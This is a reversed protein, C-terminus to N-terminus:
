GQKDVMPLVSAGDYPSTSSPRREQWDIAARADAVLEAPYGMVELLAIANRTSSVGDHIRYDFRVQGGSMEERFHHPVYADGILDLVETDHTAVIVLDMGRNLYALVAAAAAVRETTNTGRFIEDVLFLHQRGSAKAELLARVSEVEALYYSKGEVLNDSRGISTRVRLMPARWGGACVTHLTQALVANVGLARVFTTKGSMNSGTILVSAGNVDLSNAVPESLLPHIVDDVLFAKREETFDPTTWEAISERWAVISQVADIYGVAEIMMRLEARSRRLTETTFVFANVDFLFLLNIYAYAMAVLESAQGPEFMLWRTARRLHSLRRVGDHLTRSEPALEEVGLAGLEAAARLFAPIEHLAPVFREVRPKYYLQVLVNVLAIAMWAVLAIPWRSLAGVCALSAVTLLPFIWWFAPRAPLEGLILHVLRAARPDDLRRLSDGIRQRLDGDGAIRRAARELRELPAHDSQPCRLLHYLYQRGPESATRDLSCFVEDLDLDRWTRDDLADERDEPELLSHYAAALTMDAAHGRQDARRERVLRLSIKASPFLRLALLALAPVGLVLALLLPSAPM